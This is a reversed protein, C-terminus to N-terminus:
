RVEYNISDLNVLLQQFYTADDDTLHLTLPTHWDREVWDTLPYPILLGAEGEQFAMHISHVAEPPIVFTHVGNYHFDVVTPLPARLELGLLIATDLVMQTTTGISRFTCIPMHRATASRLGSPIMLGDARLGNFLAQGTPLDCVWNCTNDLNRTYTLTNPATPTNPTHNIAM